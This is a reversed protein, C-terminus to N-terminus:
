EPRVFPELFTGDVPYVGFGGFPVGWYVFNESDSDTEKELDALTPDNYGLWFSEETREYFYPQGDLPNILAATGLSETLVSLSEPYGGSSRRHRELLIAIRTIDVSAQRRAEEQFGMRSLRLIHRWASNGRVFKIDRLSPEVDFEEYFQELAPKAEFYPLGTLDLLKSTARGFIEVDHNFLPTTLHKYAWNRAYSIPYKSPSISAITESFNEYQYLVVATDREVKAAFRQSDRQGALQRLLTDWQADDVVGSALADDVAAWIWAVYDGDLVKYDPDVITLDFLSSLTSIASSHRRTAAQVRAYTKLAQSITYMDREFDREVPLTQGTLEVMRASDECLTIVKAMFEGLCEEYASVQEMEEPNLPWREPSAAADNIEFLLMPLLTCDSIAVGGEGLLTAWREQLSAFDDAGMAEAASESRIASAPTVIARAEDLRALKEKLVAVSAERARGTTTALMQGVVVALLVVAVITVLSWQVFKRM